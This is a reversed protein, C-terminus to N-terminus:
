FFFKFKNYENACEKILPLNGTVKNTYIYYVFCFGHYNNDLYTTFLYKGNKSVLSNIVESQESGIKAYIEDGVPEFNYEIQLSQIVMFRENLTQFCCTLVKGKSRSNMIQCGLDFQNIAIKPFDLYFPKFIGKNVFLNKNNNAKYQLINLKGNHIFTIIFHFFDGEKKYFILNYYNIISSDEIESMFYSFLYKGESNFFYLTDDVLCVINGNNEPFQIILIKLSIKYINESNITKNFYNYSEYTENLNIDCIFMGEINAIFLKQNQLLIANPYSAKIGLSDNLIRKIMAIFIGLNLLFKIRNIFDIIYM